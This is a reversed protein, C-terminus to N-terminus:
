DRKESKLIEKIAHSIEKICEKTVYFRHKTEKGSKEKTKILGKGDLNLEENTFSTGYQLTQLVGLRKLEGKYVMNLLSDRTYDKDKRICVKKNKCLMRVVEDKDITVPHKEM